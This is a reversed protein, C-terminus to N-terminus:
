REKRAHALALDSGTWAIAILWMGVLDRWVHPNSADPPTVFSFAIAVVAFRAVVISPVIGWNM